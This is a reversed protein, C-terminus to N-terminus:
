RSSYSCAKRRPRGLEAHQHWQMAIYLQSFESQNPLHATAEICSIFHKTEVYTKKQVSLRVRWTKLGIKSMDLTPMSYPHIIQTCKSWAADVIVTIAPVGEYFSGREIGKHKDEKEKGLGVVM